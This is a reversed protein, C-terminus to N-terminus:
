FYHYDDLNRATLRLPFPDRFYICRTCQLHTTNQQASLKTIVKAVANMATLTFCGDPTQRDTQRDYCCRLLKAALPVRLSRKSNEDWNQKSSIVPSVQIVWPTETLGCGTDETTQSALYGDTTGSVVYSSGTRSCPTEPTVM